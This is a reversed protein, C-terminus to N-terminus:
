APAESLLAERRRNTRGRRVSWWALAAGLILPVGGAAAGALAAPLLPGLPTRPRLFTGAREFNLGRAAGARLPKFGTSHSTGDLVMTVATAADRREDARREGSAEMGATRYAGEVARAIASARDRGSPLAPWSRGGDQSDLLRPPPAGDREIWVRVRADRIPKPGSALSDPVMGIAEVHLTYERTPMPWNTSRDLQYPGLEAKWGLMEPYAGGWVLTNVGGYALVALWGSAFLLWFAISAWVARRRASRAREIRRADADARRVLGGGAYPQGCEPCREGSAGPYGCAGCVQDYDVLAAEVRAPRHGLGSRALARHVAPKLRGLVVAVWLALMAVLAGLTLVGYITAIADITGM